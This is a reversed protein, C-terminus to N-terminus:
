SHGETPYPQSVAVTEELPEHKASHDPPESDAYCYINGREDVWVEGGSILEAEPVTHILAGCFCEAKKM